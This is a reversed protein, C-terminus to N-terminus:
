VLARYENSFALQLFVQSLNGVSNPSKEGRKKILQHLSTNKTVSWLASEKQDTTVPKHFNSLNHEPSFPNFFHSFSQRLM